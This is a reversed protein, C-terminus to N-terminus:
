SRTIRTGFAEMREVVYAPDMVNEPNYLGPTLAKGDGSLGVARELALAAGRGSMTVYGGEDILDYRRKLAAGDHGTGNIEIVMEHTMGGGNRRSEPEGVALGLWASKAGTAAVLSPADLLAFADAEWTRGGVGVFSRKADVGEAWVWKGDKAILPNPVSNAVHDGDAVAAPGGHDEEDLLAGIWIEDIAAFERAFHLIALTTTGGLYHGLLLLTTKQPHHAYLAVEPGIDFTFDSFAVYPIGQTQAYKLANLTTDKFFPIMASFRAAPDIGLDPRGIDVQLGTANGLTKAFAEAKAGDRGAIAIPLDPHLSRLAKAARSGVIGYGGLILVPKISSANTM